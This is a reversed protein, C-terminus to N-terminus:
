LKAWIAGYPTENKNRDILTWAHTGDGTGWFDNSGAGSCMMHFCLLKFQPYNKLADVKAQLNKARQAESGASTWLTRGLNWESEGLPRDGLAAKEKQMYTALMQPNQYDHYGLLSCNAAPILGALTILADPDWSICGVMVRIGAKMLIPGIINFCHAFTKLDGDKWYKQGESDPKLNPENGIEIMVWETLGESQIVKVLSNAFAVCQNDSPVSGWDDNGEAAFTLLTKLGMAKNAKVVDLVKVTVPDRFTSNSWERAWVIKAKALYDKYPIKGFQSNIIDTAKFYSVSVAGKEFSNGTPTPPTVVPPKVTTQLIVQYGKTQIAAGAADYATVILQYIDDSLRKGVLNSLDNNSGGFCEYPATNESHDNALGKQSTIQFRVNKPVITTPKLIFEIAGTGNEVTITQASPYEGILKSPKVSCDYAQLVLDKDFKAQLKSILDQDGAVASQDKALQAKATAIDDIISM